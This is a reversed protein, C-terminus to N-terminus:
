NCPFNCKVKKLIFLELLPKVRFFWDYNEVNIGGITYELYNKNETKM